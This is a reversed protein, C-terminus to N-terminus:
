RYSNGRESRTQSMYDLLLSSTVRDRHREQEGSWTCCGPSRTTSTLGILPCGRVVASRSSQYDVDEASIGDFLDGAVPPSTDAIVGDSTVTVCLGAGNCAEVTTYYTVGHELTVHSLHISTSIGVHSKDLIDDCKPCKGINISYGTIHSHPDHFGSTVDYVHGAIPPSADVIVARSTTVATLGVRNVAQVSVYVPHGDRLQLQRSSSEQESTEVYEMTDCYGPKSGLCWNYHVLGSEPDSFVGKWGASLVTRETTYAGGVDIPEASVDPPTADITVGPSQGTTSKGVHDTASFSCLRHLLLLQLLLLLLLLLLEHLLVQLQVLLLLAACRCRSRYRCCCCCTSHRFYSRGDQLTLGTAVAMNTIGVDVYDRVDVGGPSTGIAYAYKLIGSHHSSHGYTEVDVFSSWYINLQSRDIQFRWHKQHSGIWVQGAIPPTTDVVIGNSCESNQELHQTFKEFQLDTANALICIHYRQGENLSLGHVNVFNDHRPAPRGLRREIDVLVAHVRARSVAVLRKEGVEIDLHERSQAKRHEILLTWEHRCTTSVSPSKISPDAFPSWSFTLNTGNLSASNIGRSLPADPTITVGDSYLPLFCGDPHCFQVVARYTHGPELHLNTAIVHSVRGADTTNRFDTWQSSNYEQIGWKVNTVFRTVNTPLSWLIGMYTVSSQVDIDVDCSKDPLISNHHSTMLQTQSISSACPTADLVTAGWLPTNVPLITVGDSSVVTSGDATTARVSAYYIKFPQLKLNTLMMSPTSVDKFGIVDDQGPRTGVALQYSITQDFHQFGYWAIHLRSQSSQHDIDESFQETTEVPIEVVLGGRPAGIYHEYAQSSVVTEMGNIGELKLSVYYAHRGHLRWQLDDVPISVCTPPDTWTCVGPVSSDHMFPSFEKVNDTGHSHGVAYSYGYTLGEQQDSASFSSSAWRGVLYTSSGQQQVSVAIDGSFSPAEVRVLVPGITEVTLQGARNVARIHVYFTEGDMLDPHYTIFHRHGHTSTYPLVDMGESGTSSLGVDYAHIGSEDDSGFWSLELVNEKSIIVSSGNPFTLKQCLTTSCEGSSNRTERIRYLLTDRVLRAKQRCSESPQDVPVRFRNRDIYWVSGTSDKVLGDRTWSNEISVEHIEPATTDVTVGDSCVPRSPELAKNYAVVTCHYTGPGSVTRSAYTLTTEKVKGIPPVSFDSAAVCGDSFAYQYFLIGSERDFFGQWSAYHTSGQQFDIDAQSQQSDSVVGPLPATTDITIELLPASACINDLMIKPGFKVSEKFWGSTLAIGSAKYTFITYLMAHNTVNLVLHYDFDHDGRPKAMKSMDPQIDFNRLFCENDKPICYCRPAVCSESTGNHRHVAIQGSGHLADPDLSDHLRWHIERLGSHFDYSDFEFKTNFLDVSHHVALQTRGHRSLWVDQIVPPSSDVHVLVSDTKKNGMVDTARVWVRVSDGDARPVDMTM